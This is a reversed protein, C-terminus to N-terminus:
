VRIFHTVCRHGVVGRSASNVMGTIFYPLAPPEVRVGPGASCAGPGAGGAGSGPL